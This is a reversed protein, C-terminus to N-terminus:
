LREKSQVTEHMCPVRPSGTTQGDCMKVRSSSGLSGSMHTNTARPSRQIDARKRHCMRVPCAPRDKSNHVKM